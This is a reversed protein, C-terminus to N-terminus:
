SKANPKIQETFQRFSICLTVTQGLFQASKKPFSQGRFTNCRFCRRYCFCQPVAAAHSRLFRRLGSLRFSKRLHHQLSFVPGATPFRTACPKAWFSNM